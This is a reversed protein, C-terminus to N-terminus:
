GENPSMRKQILTHTKRSVIFRVQALNNWSKPFFAQENCGAIISDELAFALDYM